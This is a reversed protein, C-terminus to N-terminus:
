LATLPNFLPDCPVTQATARVASRFDYGVAEGDACDPWIDHKVWFQALGIRACLQAFRPDSRIEPFSAIFLGASWNSVYDSALRGEEPAGLPLDAIADHCAAPSCYRAAYVASVLDFRGSRAFRQLIKEGLAQRAKADGDMELGAVQAIAALTGLPYRTARDQGLLSDLLARDKLAAACLMLTAAVYHNGPAVELEALMEARAAEHRGAYFLYYGYAGDYFPHGSELSRVAANAAVARAMQGTAAFHQGELYHLTATNSLEYRLLDLIQAQREYGGFADLFQFEGILASPERPDVAIARAMADRGQAVIRSWEGVPREYRYESLVTALGGWAPAFGPAMRTVRELLALQVQLNDPAYALGKARLYLDYIQPDIQVSPAARFDLKLKDAVMRAIDIQIALLDELKRDYVESWLNQENATDLLFVAIRVQNGSRRVSGDLIHSASLERASRKKDAGRFAFSSHKGLTAVDSGRALILLIEESIGDAFFQMDRDPSLDDFPLVALRAQPVWHEAMASAEPLREAPPADLRYGQGYIAKIMGERSDAGLAIRLERIASTLAGDSVALGDWVRDFLHAKTVLRGEANLLVCLVDFARGGIHIPGHPGVLRRDAIDVLFPGFRITERVGDM